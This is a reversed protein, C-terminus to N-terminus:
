HPLLPKPTEILLPEFRPLRGGPPGPELLGRAVPWPFPADTALGLLDVITAPLDRLSVPEGVVRGAAGKPDVIVLPVQVLQRYLSCGHFFLFHDGLHEGHDAAVIVLTDDLVGRRTLEDLLIGLRRDLYSICDDYVDIAMRVNRASHKSKDAAPWGLLSLRDLASAPRLGFGPVSRDPVEYPTHADNFNLFAFFPRTREHRRSLWALFGRDVDAGNKAHERSRPIWEHFSRGTCKELLRGLVCAWDSIEELRNGLAIYRAFTDYLELPFDEFHAFGRALGAERTCYDLNAAFGATDYGHSALYEALTPVDGRLPLKWDIGLEHPWRGTFLSAHAPLTWSSTSFALDFRM